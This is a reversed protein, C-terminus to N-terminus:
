TKQRTILSCVPSIHWVKCKKKKSHFALVSRLLDAVVNSKLKVLRGSLVAGKHVDPSRGACSSNKSQKKHLKMMFRLSEGLGFMWKQMLRVQSQDVQGSKSTAGTRCHFELYIAMTKVSHIPGLLRWLCVLGQILILQGLLSRFIAAASRLPIFRCLSVPWIKIVCIPQTM